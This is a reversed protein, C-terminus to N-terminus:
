VAAAAETCNNRENSIRQVCSNRPLISCITRSGRTTARTLIKHNHETHSHKHTHTQSCCHTRHTACFYAISKRKCRVPFKILFAMKAIEFAAAFYLRVRKLGCSVTVTVTLRQCKGSQQLSKVAKTATAATATAGEKAAATAAKSQALSSYSYDDGSQVQSKYM